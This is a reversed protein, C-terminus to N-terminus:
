SFMQQGYFLSATNYIALCFKGTINQPINPIKMTNQVRHMNTGHTQASRCHHEAPGKNPSAPRITGNGDRCQQLRGWSLNNPIATGTSHLNSPLKGFYALLCVSVSFQIGLEVYATSM